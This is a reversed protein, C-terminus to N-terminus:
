IIVNYISLIWYKYNNFLKIYSIVYKKNEYILLISNNNYNIIIVDYYTNGLYEILSDYIYQLTEYNDTDNYSILDINSQKVYYIIDYNYNCLKYESILNLLKDM